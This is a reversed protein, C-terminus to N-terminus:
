TIPTSMALSCMCPKYRNLNHITACAKKELTQIFSPLSVPLQKHQQLRQGANVNTAQDAVNSGSTSCGSSCGSSSCRSTSVSWTFPCKLPSLLPPNIEPKGDFARCFSKNKKHWSSRSVSQISAVSNEAFDLMKM